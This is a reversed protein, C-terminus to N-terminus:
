LIEPLSHREEVPDRTMLEILAERPSKDEFLIKYVQESIPMSVKYKKSMQHVTHCTRVGEAVM